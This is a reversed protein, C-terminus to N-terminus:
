ALGFKAALKDIGAELDFDRRVRAAGAASLRARLAPDAILRALAAVFGAHDGPEVLVGNVEPEILEPVGAIATAVVALGQSQAEVLV